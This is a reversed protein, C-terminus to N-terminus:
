RIFNPALEGNHCVLVFTPGKLEEVKGVVTVQKGKYQDIMGGHIMDYTDTAHPLLKAGIEETM